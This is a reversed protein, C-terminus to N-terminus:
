QNNLILIFVFLSVPWHLCNSPHIILFNLFSSVNLKMQQILEDYYGMDNSQGNKYSFFKYSVQYPLSDIVDKFVYISYGSMIM